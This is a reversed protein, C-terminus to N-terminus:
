KESKSNDYHLLEKEILINSNLRASLLFSARTRYKNTSVGQSGSTILM